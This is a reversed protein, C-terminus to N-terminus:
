AARGPRLLRRRARELAAPFAQLAEADVWPGLSIRLGSAAEAETFGMARLVPSAGTAAGARCASGSSLAYGERWLARVMARGCLPSGDEDAVLLSLHHPLREEEGAPDAGSLRLGPIHRLRQWLADRQRAVPDRGRGDALRRRARHLAEAFGAALVVPETGGRRGGEQVGGVLPEIALGPRLLLAGIGRPGQLKHAACSLMDVPLAAFNLERHGVVQVADVHLLVGAARCLRGVAEIPQLTGVESQGWILSVM